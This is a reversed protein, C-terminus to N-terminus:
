VAVPEQGRILYKRRHKDDCHALYYAGLWIDEVKGDPSYDQTVHKDERLQEANIKILEARRPFPKVSLSCVKLADVYEQCPRVVMEEMRAKLDMKTRMEATSGRVRLSFFTAALGSGYSYMAVRKGQLEESPTSDLLSALAGYLSATYMNGLKKSALTAPGTKAKFAAASLAVFTKEVDKNMLTTSRDLDLLAPPVTAFPTSTPNSLYDNYM